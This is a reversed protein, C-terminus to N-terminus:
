RVLHNTLRLSGIVFETSPPGSGKSGVIEIHSLDFNHLHLRIERQSSNGTITDGNFNTIDQQCEGAHIHGLNWAIAWKGRRHCRTSLEAPRHNQHLAGDNTWSQCLM